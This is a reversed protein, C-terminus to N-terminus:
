LHIKKSDVFEFKIETYEPEPITLKIMLLENEKDIIIEPEIDIEPQINFIRLFFDQTKNLINEYNFDEHLSINFNQIYNNFSFERASKYFSYSFKVFYILMMILFALIINQIFKKM